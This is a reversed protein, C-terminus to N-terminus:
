GLARVDGIVSILAKTRQAYETKGLGVPGENDMKFAFLNYEGLFAKYTAPEVFSRVYSFAWYECRKRCTISKIIISASSVVM